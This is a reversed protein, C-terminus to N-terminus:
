SRTCRESPKRSGNGSVGQNCVQLVSPESATNHRAASRMCAGTSSGGTGGGLSGGRASYLLTTDSLRAVSCAWCGVVHWALLDCWMCSVVFATSSAASSPQAPRASASSDSPATVSTSQSLKSEHSEFWDSLEFSASRCTVTSGFLVHTVTSSRSWSRMRCIATCSRCCGRRGEGAAILSSGVVRGFLPITYGATCQAKTPMCTPM